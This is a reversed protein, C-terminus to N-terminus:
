RDDVRLVNNHSIFFYVASRIFNLICVCVCLFVYLNLFFTNISNLKIFGKYNTITGKTYSCKNNIFTGILEMSM